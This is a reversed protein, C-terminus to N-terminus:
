RRASVLRRWDRAFGAIGAISIYGEFCAPDVSHNGPFCGEAFETPGRRIKQQTAHVPSAVCEHIAAALVGCEDHEDAIVAGIDAGANIADDGYAVFQYRKTQFRDRDHGVINGGIGVIRDLVHFGECRPMMEWKRIKVIFSLFGRASVAGDASWIKEAVVGVEFQM